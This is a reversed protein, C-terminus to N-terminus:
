GSKLFDDIDMQGPLRPNTGEVIQQIRRVSLNHRRALLVANAGNYDERIRRATALGDISDLKPIYIVEGGYERCLKRMADEGIVRAIDIHM